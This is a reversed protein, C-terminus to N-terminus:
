QETGYVTDEGKQMCEYGKMYMSCMYSFSDRYSLRNLSLAVYRFIRCSSSMKREELNDKPRYSLRYLSQSCAPRDPSRIGTLPSKGCGDLGARPGM